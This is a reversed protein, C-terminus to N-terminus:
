NSFAEYEDLLVVHFNRSYQASDLITEYIVYPETHKIGFRVSNRINSAFDWFTESIQYPIRPLETYKRRLRRSNRICSAFAESTRFEM